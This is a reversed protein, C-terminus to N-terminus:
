GNSKKMSQWQMDAEVLRPLLGIVQWRTMVQLNSKISEDPSLLNVDERQCGFRTEGLDDCVGVFRIKRDLDLIDKSLKDYDMTKSIVFELFRDCLCLEKRKLFLCCDVCDLHESVSHGCCCEINSVDDFEFSGNKLMIHKQAQSLPDYVQEEVFM